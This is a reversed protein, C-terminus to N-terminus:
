KQMFQFSEYSLTHNARKKDIEMFTSQNLFETMSGTPPVYTQKRETILDNATKPLFHHVDIGVNVSTPRLSMIAAAGTKSNHTHGYFHWIGKYMGDWEAMPYHSLFIKQGNDNVIENPVIDVFQHRFASDKLLTIDHNGIVLIKKANIQELRYIAEKNQGHCSVDGVIFLVDQKGSVSNINHVIARDMELVSPFPRQCQEIIKEYGFHLDSTYFYNKKM